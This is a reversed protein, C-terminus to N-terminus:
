FFFPRISIYLVLLSLGSFWLFRLPQRRIKRILTEHENSDKATLYNERAQQYRQQHYDFLLRQAAELQSEDHLWIAPMSFGFVGAHTEYFDFQHQELLQRIEEAEDTPVNKLQFLQAAM